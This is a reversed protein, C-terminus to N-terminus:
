RRVPDVGAAELAQQWSGFFQRARRAFSAPLRCRAHMDMGAAARRRLEAIVRDPTWKRPVARVSDPDIGAARLAQNWGGHYRRAAHYLTQDAKMVALCNVPKDAQVRSQIAAEVRAPSWRPPLNRREAVGAAELAADFSGFLREAVKAISRPRIAKRTV